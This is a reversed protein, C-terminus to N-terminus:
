FKRCWNIMLHRFEKLKEILKDIRNLSMGDITKGDVGKTMNGEAAYINQYALLFLDRNYLNRYLREFTYNLNSSHKELSSLINVPNRM